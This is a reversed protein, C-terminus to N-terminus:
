TQIQLNIQKESQFEKFFEQLIGSYEEKIMVTQYILISFLLHCDKPFILSNKQKGTPFLLDGRM